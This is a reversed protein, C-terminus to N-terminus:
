SEGAKSSLTFNVKQTITGVGNYYMIGGGEFFIEYGDAANPYSELIQRYSLSSPTGPGFGYGYFPLGILIKEVLVGRNLRFYNFDDVVM